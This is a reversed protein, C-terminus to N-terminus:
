DQEEEFHSPGTLTQEADSLSIEGLSALLRVLLGYLDRRLELIELSVERLDDKLQGIEAELSLNALASLFLERAFTHISTAGSETARRKVEDSIQRAVRFSITSSSLSPKISKPM